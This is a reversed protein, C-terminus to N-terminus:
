IYITKTIYEKGTQQLINEETFSYVVSGLIFEPRTYLKKPSFGDLSLPSIGLAWEM